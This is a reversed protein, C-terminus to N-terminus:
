ALREKHASRDPNRAKRRLQGCAADIDLGRSRRIHANVGQRRLANAFDRMAADSPRDYAPGAVPNYPILNMNCRLRQAIRVIRQVDVPRMNVGELMVYELTVERGTREFFYRAAEVLEAITVREAWPILRRRLDDAAAHLSIALNIQLGEDALRRIQKPLGITSITIRRAGINMGRPANMTRVAAVVAAYNALPEGIGMFVINTLRASGTPSPPPRGRDPVGQATRREEGGRECIARVRMAQELIQGATLQRELGGIGSACFTCQVPCGVQSSICATHRDAEPIWVCESTAGDAWQLLAKVTGDRSRQWAGISSAYVVIQRDLDARLDAPLNTMEDFGSAGHRYVWELVQGARYAPLGRERFWAALADRTFDFLHLRAETEM